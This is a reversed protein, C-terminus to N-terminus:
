DNKRRVLKTGLRKLYYRFFTFQGLPISVMLVCLPWLVTILLVYLVIWLGKHNPGIHHMIQRGIMGCATGGIAFTCIILLVQWISKVKWKEKLGHLGRNAKREAVDDEEENM